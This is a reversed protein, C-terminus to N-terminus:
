LDERENLARWEKGQIGKGGWVSADEPYALYMYDIDPRPDDIVEWKEPDLRKRTPVAVWTEKCDAKLAEDYGKSFLCHGDSKLIFEGKAVVVGANIAQRMGRPKPFYVYHVRLDSVIEELPPWYGELVAIVEIEQTAKSLLDLITKRLYIENRSPIVVSVLNKVM